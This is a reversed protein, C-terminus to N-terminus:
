SKYDNFQDLLVDLKDVRDEDIMIDTKDSQSLYQKGLWVLMTVNGNAALEFQRRRLSAKGNGSKKIFYETFNFGTDQKLRRNLTDYDIDLVSAIEEGTCQIACLKDITNYDLEIRPRGVKNAKPEETVKPKNTSGKPRAM